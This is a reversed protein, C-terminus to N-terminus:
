KIQVSVRSELVAGPVDIGAQISEKIAKKNPKFEAILEGYLENNFGDALVVGTSKRTSLRRLGINVPGHEQLYPLLYRKIGNIRNEATKKKAQLQQIERRVLESFGDLYKVYNALKELKEKSGIQANVIAQLDEESLEGDSVAARAEVIKIIEDCEYISLKENM